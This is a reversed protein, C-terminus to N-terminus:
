DIWRSPRQAPSQSPGPSPAEPPPVSRDLSTSRGASKRNTEFLDIMQQIPTIGAIPDKAFQYGFAVAGVLRNNVYVPSGSMGQFVGVHNMREGVLRSLVASQGPNPFGKLVGLIELEFPEPERGVFVTYGIAKMGPRLEELPFFKESQRGQSTQSTQGWVATALIGAMMLVVTLRKM